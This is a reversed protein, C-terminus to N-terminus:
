SDIPYMKRQISLVPMKVLKSREAADMKMLAVIRPDTRRSQEMQKRWRLARESVIDQYDGIHRSM